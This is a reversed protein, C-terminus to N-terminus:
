RFRFLVTANRHNWVYERKTCYVLSLYLKTIHHVLRNECYFIKSNNHVLLLGLKFQLFWPHWACKRTWIIHFFKLCHIAKDPFLYIQLLYLAKPESTQTPFSNWLIPSLYYVFKLHLAHTTTGLTRICPVLVKTCINAQVLTNQLENFYIHAGINLCSHLMWAKKTIKSQM